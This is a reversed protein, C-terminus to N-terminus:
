IFIYIYIHNKGFPHKWSAGEVAMWHIASKVRGYGTKSDVKAIVENSALSDLVFSWKYLEAETVYSTSKIFEAFQENTVCDIDMKFKKVKARVRPEAGDKRNVAIIKGEEGLVMQTGFWFVDGNIDVQQSLQINSNPNRKMGLEKPSIGKQPTLIPEKEGSKKRLRQDETYKVYEEYVKAQEEKTLAQFQERQKIVLKQEELSLSDFYEKQQRKIEEDEEKSNKKRNNPSHQKMNFNEDRDQTFKEYEEQIYNQDEDNKRSNIPSQQNMNNRKEKYKDENRQKMFNEYQEQIYRQDEDSLNDPLDLQAASILLVVNSLLIFLILIYIKFM